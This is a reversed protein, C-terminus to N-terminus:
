KVEFRAVNERAISSLDFAQGRVQVKTVDARGVVANLPLAGSADIVEGAALMRRLLVTGKADTVEVWSAASPSFVIVGTASSTAAPSPTLVATMSATAALSASPALATAAAASPPAASPVNAAIAVNLPATVVSTVVNSAPLIQGSAVPSELSYAAPQADTSGPMLAVAAVDESGPSSQLMPWVLLGAAAVVLAAASGMVPKPLSRWAAFGRASGGTTYSDRSRATATHLRPMAPIPLQGLVPAADMKLARCVSSALARAFVADPLLDFRDSELAELRHAPVKLSVALAAIHMGAAVRGQRLLTGASAAVAVTKLADNSEARVGLELAESNASSVTDSM